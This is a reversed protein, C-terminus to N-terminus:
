SNPTATRRRAFAHVSRDAPALGLDGLGVPQPRAGKEIARPLAFNPPLTRTPLAADDHRQREGDVRLGGDDAHHEALFDSGGHVGMSLVGHPHFRGIAHQLSRGSGNIADDDVPLRRAEIQVERQRGTAPDRVRYSWVNSHADGGVRRGEASVLHRGFAQRMAADVNSRHAVFDGTPNNRVGGWAEYGTLLIRTPSAGARQADDVYGRLAAGVVERTGRHRGAQDAVADVSETAADRPVHLFGVLREGHANRVVSSGPAEAATQATFFAHECYFDGPDAGHRVIAHTGQLLTEPLGGRPVGVPSM